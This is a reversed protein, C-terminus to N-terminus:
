RPSRPACCSQPYPQPLHGAQASRALPQRSYAAADSYARVRGDAPNELRSNRRTPVTVASRTRGTAQEGLFLDRPPNVDHHRWELRDEAGPCLLRCHGSKIIGIVAAQKVAGILVVPVAILILKKKGGKKPADAVDEALAETKPDSKSSM